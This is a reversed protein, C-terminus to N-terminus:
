ANPHQRRWNEEMQRLFTANLRLDAPTMKETFLIGNLHDMEHQVAHAEFGNVEEDIPGEPTKGVIHVSDYRSIAGFIGPFSLCGEDMPRAPGIPTMVPDFIVRDKKGTGETPVSLIFLRVKWGVQPAALGAGRLRKLLNRMEDVKKEVEPSWSNVNENQSTLRPDPYYLVEMNM